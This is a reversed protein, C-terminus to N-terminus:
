TQRQSKLLNDEIQTIRRNLAKNTKAQRSIKCLVSSVTSYNNMNFEKGIEELKKGTLCRAIYLAINRPENDVGRKRICLSEISVNYTKSVKKKIEEITPALMKSQPIEAHSKVEFFQRKIREIFGDEGLVAQLNKKAFVKILSESDQQNVFSNYATLQLAKNKELISLVFEKYLWNGKNAPSAYERHSSWPYDAVNAALGARLPNRHIYKLLELLYNDADVLMANYRGRFLQGDTQYRRNFRQTYIGNIHRMCRDLNGQPTQLLLHYHNSMLCYAAVGIGWMHCTEKLLDIFITYDQDELFVAEGRRGRNMVHYWANPYQIRLPRAM